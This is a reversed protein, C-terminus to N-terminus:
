EDSSRRAVKSGLLRSAALGLKGMAEPNSQLEQLKQAQEPTLFPSALAVAKDALGQAEPTLALSRDGTEARVNSLSKTAALQRALAVFQQFETGQNTVTTVSDNSSPAQALAEPERAKQDNQAAVFSNLQDSSLSRGAATQRVPLNAIPNEESRTQHEHVPEAANAPEGAAAKEMEAKADARENKARLEAFDRAQSEPKDSERFCWIALAIAGILVLFGFLQKM